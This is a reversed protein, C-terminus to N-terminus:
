RGGPKVPVVVKGQGITLKQKTRVRVNVAGPNIMEITLYDEGTAKAPITVTLWDATKSAIAAEEGSGQGM